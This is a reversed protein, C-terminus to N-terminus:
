FRATLGVFMHRGLFDYTPYANPEGSGVIASNIIPPDKDFINNIGARLSLKENINWNAALDLYSVAPITHNFPDHSNQGIIPENTDTELTTGGIYRWAASVQVDHPAAWTVRFQHRWHPTITACQPGYLGACDYTPGGVYPTTKNNDIFSGDLNFSLSGWEDHGIVGFGLKYAAQVDIGTVEAAGVNVNSGNIYGGAAASTGFLIGSVPNRVVQSCYTPNGTTLCQQLTVGLPITGIENKLNIHFYDISAYLGPIARPTLVFGVTYTNAREPALATNGGDLVACQQAPCQAISAFKNAGTNACQAPTAPHVAGVACPDESVVSTNTVFQPTYLEMINPARIARNFSGRFRIDSTPAWEMALKYTDATIGTSYDSYRYGGDFSLEKAWPMDQIIPVRIEGYGEVDSLSNDIKVAVGGFGSLDGSEEAADPSFQLSDRRSQFGLAVGVGDTAWPSKIGYEALNGTITGEIIRETTTGRSTGTEELYQTAAPTVGGDSFINYPVCSGGSQCTGDPNVLLGNQIRSLSLFNSASTYLQTYYYSGYLDYKFPGWLDGKTGFVVRYNTHDYLFQRGGGEVNRRGIYLDKVDTPSACGIAGAQQASLFPNNCNVTFGGSASLSDGQFLASPAVQTRTQDDMFSFNTYVNFNKNIEYNGFFGGTYRTDHQILSELANANYFAPPNQGAAPWPQFTNGVVAFPGFANDTTYFINSNTSGACRPNPDVNLQCAAWDRSSFYVPNQVHYTFYGELNGRGDPANAGFIISYDASRGDWAGGPVDIGKKQELGQMFENGQGHQNVGFQADMELGEFNHKMVFNVVGAVADSGYTASAGGTLVEIRDVLQSPIQNIDPAPNPNGTNPDGVGLRRGDVLVLTRQPGLGRLDVTAVGGPGSLPNSTPGLDVANNIAVQPLQNLVDITAPRGGIKIEQSNVVQIPSVSTRNPQPIRSGTVVVESVAPGASPAPTSATQASAATAYMAVLTMGGIMSSALLRERVTRTNM